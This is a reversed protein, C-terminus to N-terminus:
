SRVAASSAGTGGAALSVLEVSMSSQPRDKAPLPRPIEIMARSVIAYLAGIAGDLGAGADVLFRPGKPEIRIKARAGASARHM